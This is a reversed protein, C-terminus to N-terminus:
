RRRCFTVTGVLGASLLQMFVQQSSNIWVVVVAALLLLGTGALALWLLVTSM